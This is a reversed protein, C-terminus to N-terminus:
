RTGGGAIEGCLLWPRGPLVADGGTQSGPLKGDSQFHCAPSGHHCVSPTWQWAPSVRQDKDLFIGNGCCTFGTGHRNLGCAAIVSAWVGLSQTPILLWHLSFGVCWTSSRLLGAPWGSFAWAESVSGTCGFFLLNIPLYIGVGGGGLRVLEWNRPGGCGGRGAWKGRAGEM